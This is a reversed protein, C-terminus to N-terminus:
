KNNTTNNFYTYDDGHIDGLKIPIHYLQAYNPSSSDYDYSLYGNYQGQFLTLIECYLIDKTGSTSRYKPSIILQLANVANM